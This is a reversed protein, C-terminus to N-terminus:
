RQAVRRRRAALTILLLGTAALWPLGGTTPLTSGGPAPAAPAAAPPAPPRVPTVTTAGASEFAPPTYPKCTGTDGTAFRVKAQCVRRMQDVADVPLLWGQRVATDTAAAMKAQYGDFSGYLTQIQSDSFPVTLGGLPCSTSKYEAVPHVIPPYRIGGLTNGYQDTARATGAFTFRPTAAPAKGTTVWRNLQHLATSVAYHMPMASGALVCTGLMPDLLQGYNGAKDITADFQARSMPAQDATRPGSGFVSQYGIFFGSHATGAIEMVRYKPDKTPPDIKAENDSLLHIVPVTLPKPFTKSGGGHILFGDIVGASAQTSNVYGYLRSASQSQGAALVTRVTLGPMPDLTPHTRLVKAVQSFIDEAYDDGPHNLGAYRVPDYVQPTLPTCCLGAKQASVHVFAFGERLLLQRGEMTDVPNEFQATVNVW